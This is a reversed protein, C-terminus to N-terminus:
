EPSSTVAHINDEQLTTNYRPILAVIQDRVFRAMSTDLRKSIALIAEYDKVDFNVTISCRPVQPM